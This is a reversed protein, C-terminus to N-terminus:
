TGLIVYTGVRRLGYGKIIVEAAGNSDITFSSKMNTYNAGTPFTVTIPTAATNFILLAYETGCSVSPSGDVLTVNAATSLVRYRNTTINLNFNGGSEIVTTPGKAFTNDIQTKNYYGSLDLSMQGMLEWKNNVWIYEDYVNGTQTGANPVLYIKNGVGTTPLTSVIIFIDLSLNNILKDVETKNYYNESMPTYVFEDLFLFINKKYINGNMYFLIGQYDYGKAPFEPVDVFEYADGKFHLGDADAMVYGSKTGNNFKMRIYDSDFDFSNLAYQGNVVPGAAIFRGTEIIYRNNPQGVGATKSHVGNPNVGNIVYDGSPTGGGGTIEEPQNNRFGYLKGDCKTKHLYCDPGQNDVIIVKKKGM